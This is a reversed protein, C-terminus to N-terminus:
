KPCSQCIYVDPISRKSKISTCKFDYWEECTDCQVWLDDVATSVIGCSPCIAEDDEDSEEDLKIASMQSEIDKLKLKEMKSQEKKKKKQQAELKKEREAKKSEREKKKEFKLEEDAKKKEEKSKIDEIFELETVCVAKSNVGGRRRGAKRPEPLVLVESLIDSEPAKSSSSTLSLKESSTDSLTVSGSTNLEPHNIKLWAIYDPDQLDYKEEFRKQYLKELEPSFLPSQQNETVTDHTTPSSPEPTKKSSLAKSPIIQRDTVEGPNIPWIGTKKFGKMINVPTFSGAYAESVLSALVEVTVVRGPHDSMYKTCTKNFNSKFSKFVGVDLPQLLHTTHSPLCLLHVNNSLAMEILEISIHSSHGDQILLVPCAPPINRLFFKFWEIYLQSTMWGNESSGFLTNPYAGERFQEPVARKRPYIMMPPIFSGSASVCSLVTHTRGKEAASVTYVKRCGMEAVVKGPKFVITVGMEDSNYIQMPKSVLNLKGYISGLKGFFDSITEENASVARCYSLSQPTRITLHPHRRMFGDFWARGAPGNQFPHKRGSKSAISFAIGMVAEKTLGFGMESMKLLYQAVRDEEEDTLVTAPGPKGDLKVSGTIRRRLTEIPVNHLRAAERLGYGEELVSNVAAVM